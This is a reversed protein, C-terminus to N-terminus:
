ACNGTETINLGKNLVYDVDWYYSSMLNSYNATHEYMGVMRLTGLVTFGRNV